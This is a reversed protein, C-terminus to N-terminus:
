KAAVYAKLATIADSPDNGEHFVIRGRSQVRQGPAADPLIPDSHMCPCPPNAWTRRCHDFAILIWRDKALNHAIAVPDDLQKNDNTQANMSDVGRLMACIQTRLGKLPEATGNELWLLFEAGNETPTAKAGFRIDNPLTWENSLSGDAGRKWDQDHIPIHEDDWITPIHTHALFTLGLNSFIAEPLDVVVYSSPDWPTFVSLKTGRMPAVAGDLFGIRPHRGGPYPLLRDQLAEAEPLPQDDFRWLVERIEDETYRHAAMNAIWYNQDTRSARVTEPLDERINYVVPHQRMLTPDDPPTEPIDDLLGRLAIVEFGEDALYQMYERFQEPPTHVWPHPIDPVGHFQLVVTAGGRAKEAVKKFHELNWNPYADGTTPILLRHHKAPDFAPGVQVLGYEVEPQMGRRALKYGARDLFRVAMPGFGNGPWAFSVPKPVGVQKLAHEVLALDGELRAAMSTTNFSSHTWTHNGIEFGMEHLTACDEWTMFHETDAMWRHTIFFTAGFGHEKLIPAVVTLHSKPADDFTLVIRGTPAQAFASMSCICAMFFAFGFRNM